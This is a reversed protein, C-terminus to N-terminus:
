GIMELWFLAVTVFTCVAVFSVADRIMVAGGVRAPTHKMEAM